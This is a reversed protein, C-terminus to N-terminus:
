PMIPPWLNLQFWNTYKRWKSVKLGKPVGDNTKKKLTEM